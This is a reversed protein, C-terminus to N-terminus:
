ESGTMRGLVGRCRCVFGTGTVFETEAVRGACTRQDIRAVGEHTAAAGCRSRRGPALADQDSPRQRGCQFPRHQNDHARYERLAALLHRSNDILIQDVNERHFTPVWRDAVASALPAQPSTLLAEVGNAHLVADFM